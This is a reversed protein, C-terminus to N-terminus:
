WRWSVLCGSFTSSNRLRMSSSNGMGFEANRMKTVPEPPPPMARRTPAFNTCSTLATESATSFSYGSAPETTSSPPWSAFIMMKLSSGSVPLFFFIGEIFSLHAPAVARDYVLDVGFQAERRVLEAVHALVAQLHVRDGALAADEGLVFEVQMLFHADLRVLQHGREEFGDDALVQRHQGAAVSQPRVNQQEAAGVGVNASHDLCPFVVDRLDPLLAVRLQRLPNIGFVQDFDGLVRLIEGGDARDFEAFGFIFVNADVAAEGVEIVVDVESAQFLLLLGAALSQRAARILQVREFISVLAFFEDWGSEIGALHDLAEDAQVATRGRGLRHQEVFVAVHQDLGILEGFAIGDLVRFLDEGFQLLLNGVLAGRELHHADASRAVGFVNQFVHERCVDRQHFGDRVGFRRQLKIFFHVHDDVDAPLVDLQDNQLVALDLVEFQVSLARRAVAVEQLGGGFAEPHLDFIVGIDGEARMRHRGEAVAARYEHLRVDDVELSLAPLRFLDHRAEGGHQRFVDPEVDRLNRVDRRESRVENQLSACLVVEGGDLRLDIEDLRAEFAFFNLRADGHM